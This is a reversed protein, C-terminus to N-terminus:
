LIVVMAVRLSKAEQMALEAGLGLKGNGGRWGRSAVARSGTEIIKVVRSQEYLHFSM